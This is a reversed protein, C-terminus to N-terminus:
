ASSGEQLSPTKGHALQSQHNLHPPRTNSREDTVGVGHEGCGIGIKGYDRADTFIRWHRWGHPCHFGWSRIIPGTFFLSWCPGDTLEVRHAATARRFKVDGACYRVRQHVGGAAITHESYTGSLLFSANWWPHDHLARDDDSHLFHHLYINFVRNRPIIWWRRMYPDDDSGIIFDPARGAQIKMLRGYLWVAFRHRISM